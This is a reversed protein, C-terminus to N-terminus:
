SCCRQRSLLSHRKQPVELCTAFSQGFDVEAEELAQAELVSCSLDADEPVSAFFLSLLGRSKAHGSSQTSSGQAFNMVRLVEAREFGSESVREKVESVRGSVIRFDRTSEPDELEKM